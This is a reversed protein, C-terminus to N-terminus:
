EGVVDSNSLLAIVQKKSNSIQDRNKPEPSLQLLIHNNVREYHVTTIEDLLVLNNFQDSRIFNIWSLQNLLCVFPANTPNFDVWDLEYGGHVFNPCVSNCLRKTYTIIESIRQNPSARIETRRFSLEVVGYGAESPEPSMWIQFNFNNSDSFEILGGKQDVVANIAETINSPSIWEEKLENWHGIVSIEGQSSPFGNFLDEIISTIYEESCDQPTVYYIIKCVSSM